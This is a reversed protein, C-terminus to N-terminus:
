SLSTYGNIQCHVDNEFLIVTSTDPTIISAEGDKCATLTLVAFLLAVIKKM